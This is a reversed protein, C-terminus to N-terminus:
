ICITYVIYDGTYLMYVICMCVHIFVYILIVCMYTDMHTTTNNVKAHTSSSSSSTASTSKVSKVDKKVTVKRVVEVVEKEEEANDHEFVYGESMNDDNGNSDSGEEEDEEEEADGDSTTTTTPIHHRKLVSENLRDIGEMAIPAEDDDGEEEELITSRADGSAM